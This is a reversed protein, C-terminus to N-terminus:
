IKTIENTMWARKLYHSFFNINDGNTRPPAHSLLLQLGTHFSCLSQLWASSTWKSAGGNETIHKLVQKGLRDLSPLCLTTQLGLSIMSVFRTLQMYIHSNKHNQTPPSKECQGLTVPLHSGLDRREESLAAHVEEGPNTTWKCKLIWTGTKSLDSTRHKCTAM